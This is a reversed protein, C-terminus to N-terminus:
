ARTVLMAVFRGIVTIAHCALYDNFEGRIPEGMFTGDPRGYCNRPGAFVNIYGFSSPTFHRVHPVAASDIGNLEIRVVRWTSQLMRSLILVENKM